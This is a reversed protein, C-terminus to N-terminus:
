PSPTAPASTLKTRIVDTLQKIFYAGSYDQGYPRDASAAGRQYLKASVNFRLEREVVAYEGSYQVGYLRNLPVAMRPQVSANYAEMSAREIPMVDTKWKTKPPLLTDLSVTAPEQFALQLSQVADIIARSAVRSEMGRELEIVGAMSSPGVGIGRYAFPVTLSGDGSATGSGSPATACGTLQSAVAIAALLVLRTRTHQM